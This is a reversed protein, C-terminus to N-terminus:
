SVNVDDGAEDDEDDEDDDIDPDALFSLAADLSPVSKRRLASGETYNVRYGRDCRHVGKPLVEASQIRKRKLSADTFGNTEIFKLIASITDEEFAVFIADSPFAPKLVKIPYVAGSIDLELNMVEPNERKQTIMQMTQRKSKVPTEFLTCEDAPMSVAACAQDNRLKVLKDYGNSRSLCLYGGQNGLLSSLTSSKASMKVFEVDDIIKIDNHKITWTRPNGEVQVTHGFKVAPLM